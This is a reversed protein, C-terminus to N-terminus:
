KNWWVRSLMVDSDILSKYEAANSNFNLESDPYPMRRPFTGGTTGKKSYIVTGPVYSDPLEYGPVVEDSVESEEPYGTRMREIHAEMGRGGDAADIWKQMIIAKLKAEFTTTPYAYENTLATGIEAGMREFSATVGSEYYEKAKVDNGQRLYAEAILLDSEAKTMLHVPMTPTIIPSSIIDPAEFVASPINFSGTVMGLIDNAVVTFLSNIRDDNNTKLYNVLVANAKLNNTTNLQRQDTEYLPNSKSDSDEYNSVSADKDLVAINGTELDTLFSSIESSAFSQRADYQRLLIRLKLSNAFRAWDEIEGQFLIDNKEYPLQNYSSVDKDLARNLLTYISDYVEEGSNIVPNLKELGLFAENYPVNDYLDVLYQYDYAKIVAGMLYAGWNQNAEVKRLFIENDSLSGEFLERYPRDVINTNSSLAYTEYIKYQSSTNNQAWHQAWFSGLLGFEASHVNTVSAIAAPLLLEDSVDKPFNPNENIDLFKECSSFILVTFGLIIALKKM